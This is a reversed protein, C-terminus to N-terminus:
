NSNLRHNLPRNPLRKLQKPTINAIAENFVGLAGYPGIDASIFRCAITIHTTSAM